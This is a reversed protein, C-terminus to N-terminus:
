TKGNEVFPSKARFAPRRLDLLRRTAKKKESANPVFASLPKQREADGPQNKKEDRPEKKKAVFSARSVFERPSSHSSNRVLTESPM